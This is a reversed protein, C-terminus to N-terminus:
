ATTDVTAGVTQDGTGTVANLAQQSSQLTSPASTSAARAGEHHHHHQARFQKQMSAMGNVFDQKSVQGTGQPDLKAWVADAGQSKFTGPPNMSQFAQEFQDKTISGTDGTDIKDFLNSMKQQPPVRM